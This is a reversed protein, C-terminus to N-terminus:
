NEHGAGENFRETKYWRVERHFLEDILHLVLGRAAVYIWLQCYTFYMVLVYFFNSLTGEGKEMTLTIMIQLIFILYALLWLLHFNGSLSLQVSTLLCILFIINSLIISSLFLFYVTIFYFVDIGINKIQKTFLQPIYKLVVYINGKVWRTRQGLWVQFTEPEQEWTVALPMMGIRYGLAFLRFSIETDEAIASVDWGGLQDIVTRRIIFNTGPITCVNFLQFRGAQVMWQFSLTEINIFRTLWNKYKNRTRFKGIVAGYIDNNVIEYVLYRLAFQEPTNDADYVVLLDGRSNQYAINLANSKGRGGNEATTTIIKIERDPLQEKVALLVQQTNDSSNDNVIVIEFRDSPYNQRAIAHVTRAIVREENHAPVLVSVYPFQDLDLIDLTRQTTKRYFVYGGFALIINFILLLWISFFAYLFLYDIASLMM